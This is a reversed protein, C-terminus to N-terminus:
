RPGWVKTKVGMGKEGGSGAGNGLKQRERETQSGENDLVKGRLPRMDEELVNKTGAPGSDAGGITDDMSTASSHTVERSEVTITVERQRLVGPGPFRESLEIDSTSYPSDSPTWELVGDSNKAGSTNNQRYPGSSGVIAAGNGDGNSIFNPHTNTITDRNRSNKDPFSNSNPAPVNAPNSDSAINGVQQTAAAVKSILEAMSMEINLKVIYALPHIQMYVFSNKLSMMAIILVDMSLSFGIIWMNFRVLSKYKTLGRNVLREQIIHIFYYNLFADVLLYIVKECRDWVNNIKEYTPSIQLRAPIWINYVSINIATILVAVWLKLNRAQLRDTMLLSVRNIIIQLLFQVQLAWTTLVLIELWIMWVYASNLKARGYRQYVQETQKLAKSVTLWGFGFTFGFAISAILLDLRTVEEAVYHPSILTLM